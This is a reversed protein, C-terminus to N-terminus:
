PQFPEIRGSLLAKRYAAPAMGQWRHFARTFHSPDAYGLARAVSGIPLAGDALWLRASRRREADVLAEFSVGSRALARQLSRPAIGLTAAAVPLTAEGALLMEGIMRELRTLVVDDSGELADAALPGAPGGAATEAEQRVANQRDLLSADFALVLDGGAGFAVEAGLRAEYHSSAVQRRHPLAVRVGALEPGAIARLAALMFGAVGETLVRAAAPDSHSFHHRWIARGGTASVSIAVGGQLGPMHRAHASLCDRVTAGSFLARGSVGLAIPDAAAALELGLTPDGSRRAAEQLIACVQARAVVTRSWDEADAVGGRALVGSLGVGREALVAPLMHLLSLRVPSRDRM